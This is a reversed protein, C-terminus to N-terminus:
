KEKKHLETQLMNEVLPKMSEALLERLGPQLRELVKRVVEEVIATDGSAAQSPTGAPTLPLPPMLFPIDSLAERNPPPLTPMRGDFDNPDLSSFASDFLPGPVNSAFPEQDINPQPNWPDDGSMALFPAAPEPEAVEAPAAEAQVEAARIEEERGALARAEEPSSFYDSPQHHDEDVLLAEAPSNESSFDGNHPADAPAFILQSSLEPIGASVPEHQPEFSSVPAFSDAPLEVRPASAAPQSTKAQANADTELGADAGGLADPEQAHAESNVRSEASAQASASEDENAARADPVKSSEDRTEFRAYSESDAPEESKAAWTERELARLKEGVNAPAEARPELSAAPTWQTKPAESKKPPAERKFALIEADRKALEEVESHEAAPQAQNKAEAPPQPASTKLNATWHDDAEHSRSSSMWSRMRAVFGTRAPPQEPERRVAPPSAVRRQAPEVKKVPKTERAGRLEDVTGVLRSDKVRSTEATQTVAPSTNGRSTNGSSTAPAESEDGRTAHSSGALREAPAEEAVASGSAAVDESHALHETASLEPTERRQLGTAQYKEEGRADATSEGSSSRAEQSQAAPELPRDQQAQEAVLEAPRSFGSQQHEGTQENSQSAEPAALEAETFFRPPAARFEPEASTAETVPDSAASIAEASAEVPLCEIEWEDGRAEDAAGTARSSLDEAPEGAAQSAADAAQSAADLSAAAEPVELAAVADDDAVQKAAEVNSVAASGDAAELRSAASEVVPFKSAVTASAEDGTEVDVQVHKPPVKQESPFTIPEFNRGYSYIPDASVNEPVEIDGANRRWDSATASGDFAADDADDDVVPTISPAAAKPAASNRVSEKPAPAEKASSQTSEEIDDDADLSRMGKGFGYIVAAEEPTPEPFEPLPKPEAMAPIEPKAAALAAAALAAEKERAMEAVVRPNKELAAMVMAILPDPPVFPKKLVGDAGVRRAEKEDMPDFAGVLLIVPIHCFRADKKVFECVEYGNRVPMFVDALVVDPDADPLRRVAAEGNGVTVVELGREQFALVVMRQINTNDDAVLIRPV